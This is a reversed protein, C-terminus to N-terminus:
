FIQLIVISTTLDGLGRLRLPVELLVWEQSAELQHHFYQAQSVQGM